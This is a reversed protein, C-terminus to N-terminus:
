QALVHPTFWQRCVVADNSCEYSHPLCCKIGCGDLAHLVEAPCLVPTVHERGQVSNLLWSVSRTAMTPALALHGSHPM